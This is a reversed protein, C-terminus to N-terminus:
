ATRRLAETASVIDKYYKIWKLHGDLQNSLAYDCGVSLTTVDPIAGSIVSGVLEGNLYLKIDGDQYTVFVKHKTNQTLASATSINAVTSGNNVVNCTLLKSDNIALSIRNNVTGDHLELIRPIKGSNVGLFDFECSISGCGQTIVTSIDYSLEDAVRSAPYGDTQIYSTKYSGEECQAKKIYFLDGIKGSNDYFGMVTTSNATFTYASSIRKWGDATKIPIDKSWGGSLTRIRITTDVIAKVWVAFSYTKGNTFSDNYNVARNSAASLHYKTATFGGEGDDKGETLTVSEQATWNTFKNSYPTLNIADAGILIGGAEFRPAGIAATHIVEDLDVYTGKTDRNFTPVVASKSAAISSILPITFVPQLGPPHYIADIGSDMDWLGGSILDMNDMLM